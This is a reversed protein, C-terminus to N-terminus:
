TGTAKGKVLLGVAPDFVIARLAVLGEVLLAIQLHVDENVGSLFRM